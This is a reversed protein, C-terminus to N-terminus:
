IIELTHLLLSSYHLQKRKEQMEQSNKRRLKAWSIFISLTVATRKESGSPELTQSVRILIIKSFKLMNQNQTIIM